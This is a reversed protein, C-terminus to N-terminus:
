KQHFPNTPPKEGPRDHHNPFSPQFPKGVRQIWQQRQKPTLLDQIQQQMQEWQIGGSGPRWGPESSSGFEFNPGPRPGPVSQDANESPPSGYPPPPGHRDPPPTDFLRFFSLSRAPEKGPPPKPFGMRMGMMPPRPGMPTWDWQLKQLDEIQQPTLQLDTAMQEDTLAFPGKIQLTIQHFRALQAPTLLRAIEIEQQRAIEVRRHELEEPGEFIATELQRQWLDLISDVGRRQEPTLDLERQLAFDRLFGYQNAGILVTLEELLARVRAQSAELERQVSPDDGRQVLFDQYYALAATLLRQRTGEAFPKGAMEEESIQVFQDVAKRAQLFSEEARARELAAEEAKQREGEYARVTVLTAIGLGCVAVLLMGLAGLVVTRHRRTLKIGKEFLTPRQALIPRDDLFRQLDEAFESASRYRDMPDKALAKLLITELEKPLRPDIGRLPTPDAEAIRRLLQHRDHGAFIPRLTLLEYLTAGLSYIDSRHDVLGPRGLAQEPSAYRLTGLIEGTMTLGADSVVLALGFDAVWINGQPDLLLNAPKIDRHIVGMQHAHELAIAAQRGREAVWRAFLLPREKLDRSHNSFQTLEAAIPCTEASPDPAPSVASDAKADALPSAQAPYSPALSLTSDFVAPSHVHSSRRLEGILSALSQGDVFQMAYFHVGRDVGVAYVPVIHDHRLQAAALAENRFRQLLRSDVAAAFPLVKLAVRRRLSIQEAEYVVGMGGRGIERLLRYDGLTGLGKVSQASPSSPDASKQESRKDPIGAFTVADSSPSSDQSDPGLSVSSQNLPFGFHSLPLPNSGVRAVDRIPGALREVEARCVFFEELESRLDPYADLLKQPEPAWGAEFAELYALIIDSVRADADGHSDLPSDADTNQQPVSPPDDNQSPMIPDSM